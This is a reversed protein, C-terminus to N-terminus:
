HKRTPLLSYSKRMCIRGCEWIVVPCILIYTTTQGLDTQQKPTKPKGTAIAASGSNTDQSVKALKLLRTNIM